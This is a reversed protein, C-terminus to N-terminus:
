PQRSRELAAVARDASIRVDLSETATMRIRALDAEAKEARHKWAGFLWNRDLKAIEDIAAEALKRATADSVGSADAETEIVALLRETIADIHDTM